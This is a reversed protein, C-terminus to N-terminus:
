VNNTADSRQIPRYDLIDDTINVNVLGCSTDLGLGYGCTAAACSTGSLAM